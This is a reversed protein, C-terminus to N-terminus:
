NPSFCDHSKKRVESGYSEYGGETTGTRRCDVLSGDSEEMPSGSKDEEEDEESENM